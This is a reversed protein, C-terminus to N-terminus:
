STIVIHRFSLWSMVSSSLHYYRYTSMFIIYFHAFRLASVQMEKWLSLIALAQMSVYEFLIRTVWPVSV